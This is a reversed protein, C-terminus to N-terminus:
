KSTQNNSCCQNMLCHFSATLFDVIYREETFLQESTAGATGHSTQLM